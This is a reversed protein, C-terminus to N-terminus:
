SNMKISKPNYVKRRKIKRKQVMRKDWMHSWRKTSSRRPRFTNGMYRKWYSIGKKKKERNVDFRTQIVGEREYKDQIAHSSMAYGSKEDGGDTENYKMLELDDRKKIKTLGKMKNKMIFNNAREDLDSKWKIFRLATQKHKEAEKEPHMRLFNGKEPITIPYDGEYIEHLEEQTMNKYDPFKSKPPPIGKPVGNDNLLLPDTKYNVVTKGKSDVKVLGIQGYEKMIGVERANFIELDKFKEYIEPKEHLLKQFLPHQKLPKSKTFDAFEEKGIKKRDEVNLLGEEKLLLVIEDETKGEDRWQQLLKQKQKFKKAEKRNESWIKWFKFKAFFGEEMPMPNYKQKAAEFREIEKYNSPPFLENDMVEPPLTIPKILRQEELMAMVDDGFMVQLAKADCFRGSRRVYYYGWENYVKIGMIYKRLGKM